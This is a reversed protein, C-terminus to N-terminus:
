AAWQCLIEKALSVPSSDPRRRYLDVPRRVLHVLQGVFYSSGADDVIAADDVVVAPQVLIYKDNGTLFFDVIRM